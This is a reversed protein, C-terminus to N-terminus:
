RVAEEASEDYVKQLQGETLVHSAEAIAYTAIHIKNAIYILHRLLAELRSMFKVGDGPTNLAPAHEEFVKAHLYQSVSVGRQSAAAKITDAEEASAGFTLKQTQEAM